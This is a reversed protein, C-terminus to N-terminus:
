KLWKELTDQLLSVNIPKTLYDDMGAELCKERDGKMANATMAVIVISYNHIGLQGGRIKRTAQYGDMEPMQCDMLILDYPTESGASVLARLAQVGNEAVDTQYNLDELISLAVERNLANDEVLLIRVASPPLAPQLVPAKTQTSASSHNVINQHQKAENLLSQEDNNEDFPLTYEFVVCMAERMSAPTIPKVLCASFGPEVLTASEQQSKLVLAILAINDWKRHLRIHHRLQAGDVFPMHRDIMVLDFQPNQHELALLAKESNEAECVSADWSRLLEVLVQRCSPNHDVVLITKQSLDFKATKFLSRESKNVQVVFEFRSGKGLESSVWIKGKMLECLQKCIALGLGTGGYERTTSADAQSFSEFLAEQKEQNVGIGTDSVSVSLQLDNQIDEVWVKM